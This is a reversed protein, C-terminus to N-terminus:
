HLLKYFIPNDPCTALGCELVVSIVNVIIVLVALAFCIHIINKWARTNKFPQQYQHDIGLLIATLVIIAMSIIFVWTYLHMGLIPSGYAGTGPLLHLSVQRLSIFSALVASLIVAAYHSPRFGFKLNMLFGVAVVMFAARQLLCLPCPLEHFSLQLYQALILIVIIALFGFLNAIKELNSFFSLKPM